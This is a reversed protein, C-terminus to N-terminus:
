GKFVWGYRAQPAPPSKPNVPNSRELLRLLNGQSRGALGGPRRKPPQAGRACLRDTRQFSSLAHLCSTAGIGADAPPPPFTPALGDRRRMAFALESHPTPCLTLADRWPIPWVPTTLGSSPPQHRRRSWLPNFLASGIPRANFWNRRLAPALRRTRRVGKVHSNSGPESDVSAAHRVCALRVRFGRLPNTSHCVPSYCTPSRGELPPYRGSLSALVAYCGAKSSATILAPSRM